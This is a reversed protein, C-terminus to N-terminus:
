CDLKLSVTIIDSHNFICYQALEHAKGITRILGSVCFRLVKLLSFDFCSDSQRVFSEM